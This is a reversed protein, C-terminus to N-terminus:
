HLFRALVLVYAATAVLQAITVPLGYRLFRAFTLPKGQRACIGAAVINASAGILTANGGLTAGYMMAIFVPIVAPPWQTFQDSLAADPVYEAAVLYGKVM